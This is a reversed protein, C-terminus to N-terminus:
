SAASEWAHSVHLAHDIFSYRDPPNSQVRTKYSGIIAKQFQSDFRPLKRPADQM